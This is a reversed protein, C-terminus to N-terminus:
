TYRDFPPRHDNGVIADGHPRSHDGRKLFQPCAFRLLQNQGHRDRRCRPQGFDAAPGIARHAQEIRIVKVGHALKVIVKPLRFVRLDDFRQVPHSIPLADSFRIDMFHLPPSICRVQIPTSRVTRDIATECSADACSALAFRTVGSSFSLRRRSFM